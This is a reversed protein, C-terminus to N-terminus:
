RPETILKVMQGKTIIEKLKKNVKKVMNETMNFLCSVENLDLGPLLLRIAEQNEKIVM